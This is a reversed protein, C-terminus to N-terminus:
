LVRVRLVVVLERTMQTKSTSGFVPWNGMGPIGQDANGMQQDILGGIVVTDGDRINLTTTISKTNVVPLTVRNGSGVDVLALSKDQVQTQSPRVFLEVFGDAKVLASVGVVVGSFLSDTQVDISTTSTGAANSTNSTLKQVYRVNNGVSLYAPTGNRVRITPNSLIKVSGFSRLANVTASFSNSSFGIGGGVENASGVSQNPITVSRGNLSAGTTTLGAISAAGSGLRGILRSSLLAWDIGLQASDNLQVDILQADIQVQRGRFRKGQEILKEISRIRSPRALVYLVGGNKDLTYRAKEKGTGPSESLITDISKMLNDLSDSKDGYDGALNLSDKLNKGEKSGAGFVDGGASLELSTKGILTEVDFLREESLKVTLVNDAGLKGVVDFTALIHNLAQRGTIKQLHLNAVQPLELVAPDIALSIGFETSLIWLLMGVRADQISISVVKQSLPDVEASLANRPEVVRRQNLRGQVTDQSAFLEGSVDVVTDEITTLLAIDVPRLSPYASPTGVCGTLVICALLAGCPLHNLSNIKRSFLTATRVARSVCRTM